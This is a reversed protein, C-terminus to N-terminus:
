RQYGRFMVTGSIFPFPTDMKACRMVSIGMGKEKYTIRLVFGHQDKFAITQEDISVWKGPMWCRKANKRLKELIPVVKWLTDKASLKKSCTHFNYLYM